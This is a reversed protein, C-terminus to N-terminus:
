CPPRWAAYRGRGSRTRRRRRGRCLSNPPLEEVTPGDPLLGPVRTAYTPETNAPRFLARTESASRHDRIGDTIREDTGEVTVVGM